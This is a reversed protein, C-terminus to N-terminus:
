RKGLKAAIFEDAVSLFAEMTVAPLEEKFSGDNRAIALDDPIARRNVFVMDLAPMGLIFQGFHGAAVFAGEWEPTKETVVPIWWLYSYGAVRSKESENMRDAPVHIRTSEAVWDAPVIQNDRWRGNRVMALGLRAMDRGSLFFHYALYRSAGEYGMMRQRSPDFDQLGMPGAFDEEFAKFVSRGTLQEFAAGLVNFDWNNYHFYSGPKKSGREPINKTNSGPSGPQHYVGSSSVLLDRLTATKEIPLLGHDEDIKLDAMTLDLDIKGEAVAKGFLMSLISKRTSALYSVESVDGYTYLARGGAVAMFSTTPMGELMTDVKARVDASFDHEEPADVRVWEKAPFDDRNLRLQRELPASVPM